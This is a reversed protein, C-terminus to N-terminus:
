KYNKQAKTRNVLTQTVSEPNEASVINSQAIFEVLYKRVKGSQTDKFLKCKIRVVLVLRSIQNPSELNKEIRKLLHQIQRKM